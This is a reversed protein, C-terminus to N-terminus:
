RDEEVNRTAQLDSKKDGAKLLSHMLEVEHFHLLFSFYGFILLSSHGVSAGEVYCEAGWAISPPHAGTKCM